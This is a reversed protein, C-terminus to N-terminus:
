PNLQEGWVRHLRNDYQVIKVPEGWSHETSVLQWFRLEELAAPDDPVLYEQSSVRNGDRVVVYRPEKSEGHETQYVNVQPAVLTAEKTDKKKRGM